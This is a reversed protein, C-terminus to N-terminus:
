FVALQETDRDNTIKCPNHEKMTAQTVWKDCNKCYVQATPTAWALHKGCKNCIFEMLEPM